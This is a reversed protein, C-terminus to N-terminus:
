MFLLVFFCFAFFFSFCFTCVEPAVYPLSGHRETKGSEKLKYVASLGFNPITLTGAVDLLNAIHSLFICPHRHVHHMVNV